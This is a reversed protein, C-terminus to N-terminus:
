TGRGQFAGLVLERLGSELGVSRREFEGQVFAWPVAGDKVLIPTMNKDPRSDGGDVQAHTFGRGSRWTLAREQRDQGIYCIQFGQPTGAKGYWVILELGDSQFWRRRNAGGEQKVNPFEVLM